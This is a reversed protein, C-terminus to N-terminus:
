EMCYDWLVLPSGSTRMDKRTAEKMLSIYLEARNAWQTNAELVRLTTSIQVLFEKVAHQKETPYSDCVLVEPAGIDKAFEKLAFIYSKMDRMPYLAVFNKDSVFIQACTNGRTSKVRKTAYLTDTYFYSKLCCYLVAWNNTGVNCSLSSDGTRCILQTTVSLTREADDHPIAFLKSLQEASVGGSRRATVAAVTAFASAVAEGMGKFLECAANDVLLSGMAMSGNSMHAQENIAASFIAPKNSGSVMALQACIGDYNLKVVEDKGLPNDLLPSDIDELENDM